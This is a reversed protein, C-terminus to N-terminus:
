KIQKMWNAVAEIEELTANSKITNAKFSIWHINGKIYGKKPDFKDLSPSNNTVKGNREGWSLKINLVPCFDPALNIVDNLELDFFIEHKKAAAKRQNFIRSIHGEKTIVSKDQWKITRKSSCSKCNPVLSNKREPRKYFQDDSLNKNCKNCIKM